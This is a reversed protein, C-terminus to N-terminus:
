EKRGDKRISRLNEDRKLRETKTNCHKWIRAYKRPPIL